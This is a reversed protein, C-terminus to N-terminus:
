DITIQFEVGQEGPSVVRNSMSSKDYLDFQRDMRIDGEGRITNMDVLVSIFYEPQDMSIREWCLVHSGLLRERVDLDLRPDFGRNHPHGM